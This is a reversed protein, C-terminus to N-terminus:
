QIVGVIVKLTQRAVEEWSFKTALIRRGAEISKALSASTLRKDYQSIYQYLISAWQNIDKPKVLIMPVGVEDFKFNYIKLKLNRSIEASIERHPAIDSAVVPCGCSLAELIPLGFGEFLSPFAFVAAGSYLSPLDERDVYGLFKVSNEIGLEKPLDVINQYDWGLKGAIVLSLQNMRTATRSLSGVARVGGHPPASAPPFSSVPGSNIMQAFARILMELNKRPQVTGVCLVYNGHIKYKSKVSKVRSQSQAKFFGSDVGEYVVQIKEASIKYRRILDRKTAQSVAIIADVSRSAYKSALDLYYKGPFSHYQPLFEVGLDHMTVVYKTQKAFFDIQFKFNSIQFEGIKRKRLIPLTHAPVFLVDVPNRWTELALGIQTWLRRPRIIKLEFNNPLKFDFDRTYLGAKVGSKGSQSERLYVRYKNRRDIKALSCLLNFSYNETGTAEWVFARSADFGILM